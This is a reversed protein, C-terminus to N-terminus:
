FRQSSQERRSKQGLSYGSHFRTTHIVPTRSPTCSPQCAEMYHYMKAEIVRLTSPTHTTQRPISYSQESATIEKTFSAAILRYQPLSWLVGNDPLAVHAGHFAIISHVDCFFHLNQLTFRSALNPVLM